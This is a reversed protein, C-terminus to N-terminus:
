YTEYLFEKILKGEEFQKIPYNDADFEYSYETTTTKEPEIQTIKTVANKGWLGVSWSNGNIDYAWFWVPLMDAFSLASPQSSYEYTTSDVGAKYYYNNEILNGRSDYTYKRDLEGESYLKHLYGNGDIAIEEHSTSKQMIKGSTKIELHVNGQNYSYRYDIKVDGRDRNLKRAVLSGEKDYELSYVRYIAQGVEVITILQGKSNYKFTIEKNYPMNGIKVLRKKQGQANIGLLSALLVFTLFLVTKKM